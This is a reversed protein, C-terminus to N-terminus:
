AVFPATLWLVLAATVLVLQLPLGRRMEFEVGTPSTYPTAGTFNMSQYSSVGIVWLLIAPSSLVFSTQPGLWLFFLGVALGTWIGKLWFQRGPLWLLLMPTLASGSLGGLLTAALLQWGRQWASQLSFIDPGFGSLFFGVLGVTLLPILVLYLEVPILVVREAFHFTVQRMSEDGPHEGALFAHLDRTHVPGWVVRFGCEKYVQFGAVGTAGLQPLILRRHEVMEALGCQQVSHIIEGTSFTGKGAACWVNIGRTDAVLLWADLGDLSFRLSDFSLKYNATVLVPSKKDPSGIAYLGPSVRYRNRIPGLRAL